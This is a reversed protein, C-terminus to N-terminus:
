KARQKGLSSTNFVGPEGERGLKRMYELALDPDTNYAEMFEEKTVITGQATTYRGDPLKGAPKTWETGTPALCTCAEEATGDFTPVVNAAGCESCRYEPLATEKETGCNVCKVKRLM